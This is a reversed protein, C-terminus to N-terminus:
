ALGIRCRVNKNSAWYPNTGDDPQIYLSKRFDNRVKLVTAKREGFGRRFAVVQDGAKVTYGNVQVSGDTQGDLSDEDAATEIEQKTAPITIPLVAFFESNDGVTDIAASETDFLDDHPYFNRGDKLIVVFAAREGVHFNEVKLYVDVSDGDTDFQNVVQDGVENTSVVVVPYSNGTLVAVVKADTHVTDDDGFVQFPKNFDVVGAPYNTAPAEAAPTEVVAQALQPEANGFTSQGTVATLLAVNTEGMTPDM